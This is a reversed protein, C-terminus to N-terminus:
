ISASFEEEEDFSDDLENIAVDNSTNTQAQDASLSIIQTYNDGLFKLAITNGYEFIVTEGPQNAVFSKLMVISPCIILDEWNVSNVYPVMEQGQLNKTSFHIGDQKFCMNILANDKEEVFLAIRDLVSLISAKNITCKHGLDSSLYNKCNSAAFSNKQSIEKTSIVMNSTVFTFCNNERHVQITEESMLSLLDLCKSTLLAPEKFLKIQTLAIKSLGDSTIVEDECYYGSYCIAEPSMILTPLAPKNTQLIKKISSLHIVEPQDSIIMPCELEVPEGTNIDIFVPLKFVGSNSCIAIGSVQNTKNYELKLTVEESSLKSIIKSFTECNVPVSFDPSSMGQQMVKIYTVSDSCLLSLTGKQVQIMLIAGGALNLKTEAGKIVTSVLSQLLKTKIKLEM